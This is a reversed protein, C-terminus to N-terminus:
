TAIPPSRNAAAAPGDPGSSTSHSPLRKPHVTGPSRTLHVAACYRTCNQSVAPAMRCPSRASGPTQLVLRAPHRSDEYRRMSLGIRAPSPLSPSPLPVATRWTEGAECGDEQGYTAHPRTRFSYRHAEIRERTRIPRSVVGHGQFLVANSRFFWIACPSRRPGMSAAPAPPQKQRPAAM